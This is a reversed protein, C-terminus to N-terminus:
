RGLYGGPHDGLHGAPPWEVGRGGGGHVQGFAFGLHQHLKGATKRVGLDGGRQEDAVGGDLGM